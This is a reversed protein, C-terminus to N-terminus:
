NCTSCSRAEILLRKTQENLSAIISQVNAGVGCMEEILDEMGEATDPYNKGKYTYYCENDDCCVTADEPANCRPPNFSECIEDPDTECGYQVAIFMGLLLLPLLFFKKKM